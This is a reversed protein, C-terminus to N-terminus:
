HSSNSDTQGTGVADTIRDFQRAKATETATALRKEMHLWGQALKLWAEQTEPHRARLAEAQCYEAQKLYEALKPPM